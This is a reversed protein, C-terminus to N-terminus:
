DGRRHLPWYVFLVKSLIQERRIAGWVRSDLAASRHDSAVFFEDEGLLIEESEMRYLDEPMNGKRPGEKELTYPSFALSLESVFDATGKPKVLVELNRVRITDGPLGVIRKIVRSRIWDTPKKTEWTNQLTIFGAMWQFVEGLITEEGAYPPRLVVVDGRRLPSFGPLRVHTFPIPAGIPLPSALVRDGPKYSPMMAISDVRYTQIFFTQAAMYGVFLIALYKIGKRIKALFPHRERYFRYEFRKKSM